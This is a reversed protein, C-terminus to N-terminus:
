SDLNTAKTPEGTMVKVGPKYIGGEEKWHSDPYEAWHKAVPRHMQKWWNQIFARQHFKPHDDIQNYFIGTLAVQGSNIHTKEPTM